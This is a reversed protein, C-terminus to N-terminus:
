KKGNKGSQHGQHATMVALASAVGIGVWGKWGAEPTTVYGSIYAGAALAYTYTFMTARKGWPAALGLWSLPPKGSSFLPAKETAKIAGTVIAGYAVIAIALEDM